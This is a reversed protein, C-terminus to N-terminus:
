EGIFKWKPYFKQFSKNFFNAVGMYPTQGQRDMSWNQLQDKEFVKWYKEKVLHTIIGEIAGAYVRDLAKVNEEFDKKPDIFDGSRLLLMYLSLMVSSLQWRKSGIMLYVKGYNAGFGKVPELTTPVLRLKKELQNLFVLAKELNSKLDHHNAYAVMVRTKELSVRPYKKYVDSDNVVGMFVGALVERCKSFRFVQVNDDSLFSFSHQGMIPTEAYVDPVPCPTVTIM